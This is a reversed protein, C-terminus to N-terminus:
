PMLPTLPCTGWYAPYEAAWDEHCRACWVSVYQYTLHEGSHDCMDAENLQTAFVPAPNGGTEFYEAINQASGGGEFNVNELKYAYMSNEGLVNSPYLTIIKRDASVDVACAVDTFVFDLGNFAAKKVCYLIDPAPPDGVMAVPADLTIKIITNTTLGEWQNPHGPYSDTITAAYISVQTTFLWAAAVMVTMITTVDNKKM